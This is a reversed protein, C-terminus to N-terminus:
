ENKGGTWEIFSDLKKNIQNLEDNTKDLRHLVLSLSINCVVMMVFLITARVNSM